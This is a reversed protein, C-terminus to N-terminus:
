GHQSDISLGSADMRDVLKARVIQALRIQFYLHWGKLAGHLEEKSEGHEGKRHHVRRKILEVVIDGVQSGVVETRSIPAVDIAVIHFAAYTIM